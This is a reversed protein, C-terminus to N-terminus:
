PAVTLARTLLSLEEPGLEPHDCYLVSLRAPDIEPHRSQVYSLSRHLAVPHLREYTSEPTRRYPEWGEPLEDLEWNANGLDIDKMTIHSLPTTVQSWTSDRASASTLNTGFLVTRFFRAGSLNAGTLDADTLTALSFDCDSLNAGALNARTLDAAWFIAGRLDAGRLDINTLARHDLNMGPHPILKEM